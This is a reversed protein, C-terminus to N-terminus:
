NNDRSLKRQQKRTEMNQSTNRSDKSVKRNRFVYPEFKKVINQGKQKYEEALLDYGYLLDAKPNQPNFKPLAQAKISDKGKAKNKLPPDIHIVEIGKEHKKLTAHRGFWTLGAKFDKNNNKKVARPYRLNKVPKQIEKYINLRNSFEEILADFSDCQTDDKKAMQYFKELCNNDIIINNDNKAENLYICNLNEDVLELATVRCHGLGLPKGGGLKWDVSCIALLLALESAYLSKLSIMLYGDSNENLLEATKNIKQQPPLQLKGNDYLGQVNYKWPANENRDSTNRYIKYGKLPSNKLSITDLDGKRYFAVCGPHPNALPALVEKTLHDKGDLFVLNEPRVRAAFAPAAKKYKNSKPTLGFLDAVIDVCGDSAYSDPILSDHKDSILEWLSKGKKGWRAWQISSIDLANEIKDINDKTDLWVLMGNKLEPFAGHRNRNNYEMILADSLSLTEGNPKFIAEKKYSDITKKGGGIPLGSLKLKWHHREDKNESISEVYTVQVNRSEEVRKNRNDKIYKKNEDRGYFKRSVSKKIPESTWYYNLKKGSEPRSLSINCKRATKQLEDWDVLKTEGLRIKNKGVMEGLFLNKGNQGLKLDRDQCLFMFEDLITLAAGTIATIMHRLAGRVSTAPVIVDNGITLAKYEKHKKNEKSSIEDPSCSMLPSLTKIKLRLMGTFLNGDEYEDLSLFTPIDRSIPENNFSMFTYPNYFPAGIIDPSVSEKNTRRRPQKYNNAM